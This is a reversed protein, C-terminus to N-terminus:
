SLFSRIAGLITMGLWDLCLAAVLGGIYVGIFAGARLFGNTAALLERSLIGYMTHTAFWLAMFPVFVIIYPIATLVCPWGDWAHQQARVFFSALLTVYIGSALWLWAWHGTRIGFVTNNAFGLQGKEGAMGGCYSLLAIGIIALPMVVAWAIPSQAGSTDRLFFYYAVGMLCIVPGAAVVSVVGGNRKSIAGALAGCLYATVLCAILFWLYHDGWGYDQTSEILGSEVQAKAEDYSLTPGVANTISGLITVWYLWFAVVAGIYRRASVWWMIKQSAGQALPEVGSAGEQSQSM